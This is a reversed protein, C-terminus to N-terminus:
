KRFLLQIYTQGTRWEGGSTSYRLIFENTIFADIPINRFEFLRQSWNNNSPLSFRIGGLEPIGTAASHYLFLRSESNNVRRVDM